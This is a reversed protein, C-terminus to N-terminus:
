GPRKEKLAMVFKSAFLNLFWKCIFTQAREAFDSSLLRREFPRPRSSNRTLAGLVSVACSAVSGRWAALSSGSLTLIFERGFPGGMEGEWSGPVDVFVSVMHKCAERSM